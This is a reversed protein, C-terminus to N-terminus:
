QDVKTIQGISFELKHWIYQNKKTEAVKEDIRLENEDIENWEKM